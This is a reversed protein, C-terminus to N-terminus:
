PIYNLEKMKQYVLNAKITYGMINEHHEDYFLSRPPIGRNIDQLDEDTPTIGADELGHKVYYDRLNIYKDGFYNSFAEETNVSPRHFHSARGIVIFKKCESYDIMKQYQAIWNNISSFGGNYGIDLILIENRHNVMADTIIATVSTIEKQIGDQKRKFYFTKQSKDTWDHRISGEIGDIFCPNCGADPVRLRSNISIKVEEDSSAPIIFPQVTLPFSGQRQMIETSFEGHAGYNHVQIQYGDNELMAQLFSPYSLGLGEQEGQTKSDGWCAIAECQSHTSISVSLLFLFLLYKIRM